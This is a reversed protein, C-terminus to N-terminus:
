WLLNGCYNENRATGATQGCSNLPHTSSGLNVERVVHVGNSANIHNIISAALTVSALTINAVRNPNQEQGISEGLRLCSEVVDHSSKLSTSQPVRTALAAFFGDVFAHADDFESM